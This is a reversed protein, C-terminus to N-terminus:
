DKRGMEKVGTAVIKGVRKIANAAMKMPLKEYSDPVTNYKRVLHIADFKCKTTCQGCGLCMYENVQVAGCGLCRQTEKKMQEETFTVRDDRFSRAAQPNHGIEQRPTNDFGEVM